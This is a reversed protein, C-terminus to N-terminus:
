SSPKERSRNENVLMAVKQAVAASESDDSDLDINERSCDQSATMM